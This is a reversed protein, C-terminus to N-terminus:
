AKTQRKTDDQERREENRRQRKDREEEYKHKLRDKEKGRYTKSM